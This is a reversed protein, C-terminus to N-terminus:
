FGADPPASRCGDVGPGPLASSYGDAHTGPLPSGCWDAAPRLRAAALLRGRWCTPSDPVAARGSDAAPRCRVTTLVRGQGDARLAPARFWGPDPRLRRTARLRGRRSCAGPGPVIP